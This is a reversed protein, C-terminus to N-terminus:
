RGVRCTATAVASPDSESRATLTIKTTPAGGPSRVAYVPVKVTGGARALALANPLQARWGRGSSTASLRYVDNRAKATVDDPHDNTFPRAKGTNTLPFTCTADRAAPRGLAVGRVHPGSGDLSRVAVDYSLVGQRDRHVNVIYFHLRNHPDVWEYKSGSNTGAHFAADNLQRHDAITAKVVTGDPRTFDVMNIDQPNADIVWNFCNYGCTNSEDTKNKTILVGHDPLFSDFGMRDVTEV